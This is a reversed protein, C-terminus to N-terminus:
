LVYALGGMGSMFRLINNNIAFVFLENDDNLFNLEPLGAQQTSDLFHLTLTTEDIRSLNATGSPQHEEPHISFSYVNIGDAPTNTHHQYPQVNNFYRGERREFRDHGNLHIQGFQVPNVSGDILIGYNCFIYVIPDNKVVRTDETFMDVPFSFDRVTLSTEISTITFTGDINVTVDVNIKDTYGYGNISVSIPNVFVPDAADNTINITGVTAITTGPVNFWTGGVEATPDNNFSLSEFIIKMSGLELETQSNENKETWSKKDTYHLFQKGTTYNGHKMAWIIEKTPHNYDLVFRNVLKNVPLIGNHQIQEILYEHGVQAFRKREETDLFVYNTLVVADKIVVNDMDFDSSRIVLQEKKEFRINLRVDHYQLAIIPIALGSYRNFWFQLPIFLIYEDKVESNFTTLEPVDGIMQAYGREHDGKRALEFWIDLWIGFQRDIITGGIELEVKNIIAHGIRKVWAFDAEDPDVEGLTVKIYMKTLLDGDRSFVVTSVKDFDPEGIFPHAVVEMSFNTYRRYIAKFFTIQPNGTLYINQAGYAVLQMLGGTM